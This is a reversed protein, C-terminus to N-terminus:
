HIAESSILPVFLVKARIPKPSGDIRSLDLTIM